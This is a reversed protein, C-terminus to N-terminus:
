GRGEVLDEQTNVENPPSSNSSSSSSGVANIHDNEIEAEYHEEENHEEDSEEDDDEDEWELVDLRCGEETRGWDWSEKEEFIVDKSIIIKKTVPDYLKYAKSEDSVGLFVCKKSKDDLKSRKQDPIHVHAVCGFIRFYEVMPKVGSWAEEPTKEDVAVTLSRNQIHVCWKVAKPWFAKPVKKEALMSRVTNMITRNKRETVGNQQPIYAATLKRSIGQAKCFEGFKNSTFEDGRDTRLCTIYAGIEKEVGAKFNKFTVFAESKEHLFYVWTKRTLDDIFIIIYRKDGNSAPKIPGCIDSHVLQLQKSARWLSKKPM